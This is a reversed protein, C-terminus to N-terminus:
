PFNREVDFGFQTSRVLSLASQLSLSFTGTTPYYIILACHRPLFSALSGHFISERKGISTDYAHLYESTMFQSVTFPLSLFNNNNFLNVSFPLALM